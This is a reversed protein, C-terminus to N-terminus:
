RESAIQFSIESGSRMVHNLFASMIWPESRDTRGKKPGSVVSSVVRFCNWRGVIRM